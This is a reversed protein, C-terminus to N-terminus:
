ILCAVEQKSPGYYTELGTLCRSLFIIPRVKNSPIITGPVWIYSNALYFVIIGFGREIYADVQLFLVKDPDFYYLITPDDKYIEYQVVEFSLLEVKTPKFFTKITYVNRKGINRLVM